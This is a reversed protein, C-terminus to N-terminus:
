LREEMNLLPRAIIWIGILVLAIGSWRLLSVHENLFFACALPVFVHEINVLNYAINLPIYRLVHLWCVFSAIYFVIGVWVQWTGLSTIGLWELCGISSATENAGAKLCVESITVFLASLVIQLYPHAWKKGRFPQPPTNM